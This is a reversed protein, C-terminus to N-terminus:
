KFFLVFSIFLSKLGRILQIYRIIQFYKDVRWRWRLNGTGRRYDVLEYVQLQPLLYVLKVWVHICCM